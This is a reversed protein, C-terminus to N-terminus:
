RYSESNDYTIVEIKDNRQELTKWEGKGLRLTLLKKKRYLALYCTNQAKHDM